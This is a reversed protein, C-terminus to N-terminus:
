PLLRSYLDLNYYIAHNLITRYINNLMQQLYFLIIITVDIYLVQQHLVNNFAHKIVYM